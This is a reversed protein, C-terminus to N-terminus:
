SSRSRAKSTTGNICGNGHNAFEGHIELRKQEAWKAANEKLDFGQTKAIGSIKVTGIWKTRKKCWYVGKYGSTNNERQKTNCRNQISTALRLNKIRNDNKIENEHDIEIDPSIEGYHMVWIIRHAMYHKKNIPIQIHGSSNTKGAPKGCFRKHWIKYQGESIFWKRCRPKRYLIGDRYEFLEHLIEASPLESKM